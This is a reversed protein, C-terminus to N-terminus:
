SRQSGYLFRCANETLSNYRHNDQELVFTLLCLVFSDSAPVLGPDGTHHCQSRVALCRKTRLLSQM